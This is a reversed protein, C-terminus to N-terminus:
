YPILCHYLKFLCTFFQDNRNESYSKHNSRDSRTHFTWPDILPKRCRSPVENRSQLQFVDSLDIQYSFLFNKCMYFWKSRLKDESLNISTPSLLKPLKCWDIQPKVHNVCDIFQSFLQVIYQLSLRWRGSGLNESGSREVYVGSWVSLFM